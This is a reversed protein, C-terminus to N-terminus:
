WNDEFLQVEILIEKEEYSAIGFINQYSEKLPLTHYNYHFEVTRRYLQDLSLLRIEDLVSCDAQKMFEEYKLWNSM